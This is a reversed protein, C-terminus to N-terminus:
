TTKIEDMTQAICVENIQVDGSVEIEWEKALASPLRMIPEQLTVNSVGSPTTVAQTYVGASESVTYEALLTRDAWVKVTVPYSEADVSVWGFGAPAPLFFRKSKFTLTNNTTGERYQELSSGRIVYLEGDDDKEFGGRTEASATLTSIAAEQARPDYVWGAHTSGDTYFAVYTNEYRFARISSPYFDANWQKASILGRTVIQSENGSVAVLGDPGAYLVYGGMNVVSHKNICSQQIDLKIATMSSADTGTVFYPDKETLAIIGNAAAAIAVIDAEVTIRYNVPWAHPLYPESLCLRNGTFGAMIGNALPVLGQMPGSPYLSTDDDPPGIWTESPLVEGLQDGSLTDTFTTSSIAVEGAFQFQTNTSGTNSRYIRRLAGSGFNYNGSPTAAMTLTVTETDTLEVISSALSPPGEEGIASVFTYVYSVDYPTQTTDATGSKTVTPASDPAPIGLRYSAAPYVAGSIMSTSTGVRPYDEGTWYVRDYSDNPVPGKVVDADEDWQLWYSTGGSPEYRFVTRRTSTSLTFATTDNTTPVLAGSEFDINEATQGFQDALRRPDVGPAIGSFDSLKFYM